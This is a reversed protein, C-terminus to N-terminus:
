PGFRIAVYVSAFTVLLAAVLSLGFLLDTQESFRVGWLTAIEYCAVAIAFATVMWLWLRAVKPAANSRHTVVHHVMLGDLADTVVLGACFAVGIFLGVLAGGGLSFAAGYAAIQSSTEFGLGFLLGIPIAALPNQANRLIRPLLRTKVGSPAADDRLLAWVNIAAIALLVGVSLWLGATELWAARAAVRASLASFAVALGLVMASHGAAFFIGTFRSLLPARGHANRTVNDIAALHDPDAGHRMGLVFVTVAGLASV